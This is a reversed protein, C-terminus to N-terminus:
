DSGVVQSNLETTSVDIASQLFQQVFEQDYFTENYFASLTMRDQWTWLYFIIQHTMMEVGVWFDKVKIIGHDPTLYRDVVGVSSLLPETPAPTDVQPQDIIDAMESTSPVVIKEDIQSDASPPIRQRYFEKLQLAINTYTSLQLVLLLGVIHLAM